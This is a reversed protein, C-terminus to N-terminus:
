RKLEKGIEECEYKEKLKFAKEKIIIYETWEQYYVGDILKFDTKIKFGKDTRQFNDYSGYNKLEEVDTLIDEYIYYEFKKM